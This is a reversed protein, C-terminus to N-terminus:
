VTRSFKNEAPSLYKDFTMAINRIFLRGLPTIQITNNNIQILGDAELVNTRKYTQVNATKASENCFLDRIIKRIALDDESLRWGKITALKGAEIARYYNILRKENQAYSGSCDSISTLGFGILDTGAKTTYGQFNRWLTGNRAAISLEDDSKAFHDMGIFDYGARCLQEITQCFIGFKEDGSPLKESPLKRQHPMMKPLYAFNFCAIRDPSLEIIKDVTAKFTEKTQYPLGYVLDINVSKFGFARANEITKKVHEFPEVRGIANQVPASFDQVGMSIRNFGLNCLLKLQESTTVRPDIEIGIEADDTFTFRATISKWLTELESCSLFTPTGGGYHLQSVKRKASMHATVLKIEEALAKIYRNIVDNHTTEITSCGCFLCRKSCFPIHFYLSLHRLAQTGLDTLQLTNSNQLASIYNDENFKDTWVPATPYSTYRPGARDYKKLLEEPIKVKQGNIITKFLM